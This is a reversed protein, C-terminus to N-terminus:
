STSRLPSTPSSPSSATRAVTSSAGMTTTSYTALPRQPYPLRCTFRSTILDQHVDVIQLLVAKVWEDRKTLDLVELDLHRPETVSGAREYGGLVM